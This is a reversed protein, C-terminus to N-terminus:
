ADPDDDPTGGPRNVDLSWALQSLKGSTLRPGAKAAEAAAQAEAAAAAAASAEKQTPKEHKWLFLKSHTYYHFGAELVDVFPKGSVKYFALAGALGGVLVSLVIAIILPTYVFFIICLGIGGGIYVFQKLSLPGIIKDEVEIFQPVQYEM